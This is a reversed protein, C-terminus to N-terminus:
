SQDKFPIERGTSKCLGEGYALALALGANGTDM